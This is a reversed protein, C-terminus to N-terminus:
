QYLVKDVFPVTRVFVKELRGALSTVLTVDIIIAVPDAAQIVKGIELILLVV